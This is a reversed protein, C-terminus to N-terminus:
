DPVHKDLPSNHRARRRCNAIQGAFKTYHLSRRFECDLEVSAREDDGQSLRVPNVWSRWHRPDHPSAGAPMMAIVDMAGGSSASDPAFRGTIGIWELWQNRRLGAMSESRLWCGESPPPATRPYGDVSPVSAPCLVAHASAHRANAIFLRGSVSTRSARNWVFWCANM